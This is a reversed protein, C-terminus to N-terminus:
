RLLQQVFYYLSNWWRTADNGNGDVHCIHPVDMEKLYAHM